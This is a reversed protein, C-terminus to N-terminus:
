PKSRAPRRRPEGARVRCRAPADELVHLARATILALSLLDLRNHEFVPELREANGSRVYDFYRNPIEIGQCTASAGCASCRGARARQPPLQRHRALRGARSARKALLAAGRAAHRRARLGRVAARLRNFQYRTELVPVDFSKGNYSVLGASRASWATSRTWAAHARAPVRRPLVAPHPLRAARFVRLRRSVRLHRRRRGTRDDRSRRVAAPEADGRRVRSGALWGVAGACELAVPRPRRRHARHRASPRGSLLARHRRVPRGDRRHRRRRAHVGVHRLTDGLPTRCVPTLDDAGSERSASTAPAARAPHRRLRSELHASM